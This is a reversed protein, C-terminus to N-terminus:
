GDRDLLGSIAATARAAARDIEVRTADLTEVYSALAPAAAPATEAIRPANAYVLAGLGVLALGVLLGATFGGRGPHARRGQAEAAQESAARLTANIADADPLPGTSGLPRSRAIAAAPTLVPASPVDVLGRERRIRAEREAEERLITRVDDALPPRPRPTEEDGSEAAAAGAPAQQWVHDCATCQVSRGQPPILSGDIEYRAGCDPCTVLM